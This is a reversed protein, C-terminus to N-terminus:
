PSPLVSIIQIMKGNLFGFGLSYPWNNVLSHGEEKKAYMLVVNELFGKCNPTFMHHTRDLLLYTSTIQVVELGSGYFGEVYLGGM